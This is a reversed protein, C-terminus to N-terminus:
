NWLTYLPTDTSQEYYEEDHSEREYYDGDDRKRHRPVYCICRVNSIKGSTALFAKTKSTNLLKIRCSCPFSAFYTCRYIDMYTDLSLYQKFSYFAIETNKMNFNERKFSNELIYKIM